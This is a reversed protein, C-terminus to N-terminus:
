IQGGAVFDTIWIPRNPMGYSSIALYNISFVPEWTESKPYAISKQKKFFVVREKM